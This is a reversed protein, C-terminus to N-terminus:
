KREFKEERLKKILEYQRKKNEDEYPLDNITAFDIKTAQFSDVRKGLIEKVRPLKFLCFSNAM